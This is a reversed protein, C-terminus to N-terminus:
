TAARAANCAAELLAPVHGRGAETELTGRIHGMRVVILDLSPVLFAYQGGIGLFFATDEPAPWRDEPAHRNLWIQGGYISDRFGAPAASMWYQGSWAPTPTLCTQLCAWDAGIADALARDIFVQALRGWDRACGYVYGTILAHGYPDTELLVTSAGLPHLLRQYPWTLPDLGADILRDELAAMLLLTDSNKYAGFSGPPHRAARSTVLARADLAGSYILGHDPYGDRSADYDGAWAASFALGSSMRLADEVRISRRPDSRDIWEKLDLAENLGILGDAIACALLLAALSKGMSWAELPMNRDAGANYIEAVLTGKHLICVAATMTEPPHRFACEAAAEFAAQPQEELPSVRPPTPEPARPTFFPQAAGIPLLVAGQGDTFLATRALGDCRATVQRPVSLDIEVARGGSLEARVSQKLIDDVARRSVFLGSCVGKAILGLDLLDLDSRHPLGRASGPPATAIAPSTVSDRQKTTM